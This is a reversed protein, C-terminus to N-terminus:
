NESRFVRLKNSLGFMGNIQTVENDEGVGTRLLHSLLKYINNTSFCHSIHAAIKSVTDILYFIESLLNTLKNQTTNGIDIPACSKKRHTVLKKTDSCSDDFSVHINKCDYYCHQM